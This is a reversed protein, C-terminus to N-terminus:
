NLQYDQSCLMLWAAGRLKEATVRPGVYELLVGRTEASLPAALLEDALFDVAAGPRTYLARRRIVSDANWTADFYDDTYSSALLDSAQDRLAVYGANVLSEKHGPRYFSFVSPPLYVLQGLVSTWYFLTNGATRAGLGRLAGVVHEIPEKHQTRVVDASYFEDDTFIARVTAAIDGGSASFIAAVRQVYGPSPTETALKQILEKAIFPAMSPQAMLIDVVREVDAAGNEEDAPIVHGLVLKRGPDHWTPEFVSPPIIETPDAPDTNVAYSAFWGTLARAVERVDAETYAAIPQGNGDLVLSGDPNLRHVGLAFLQLLERAYNENPAILNGDDDRAQGNNYSNDLYILMANDRTVAALLERFSGLGDARFLNEQDRMIPFSGVKFNSTAFHEHWLLAMKVQLQRRSYAMRTLWRLQWVSGDDTASPEPHFRREGARDDISRPQLQRELYAARGIRLVDRMERRDPGFGLRRLLHGALLHQRERETRRASRTTQSAAPRASAVLFAASFALAMGATVSRRARERM